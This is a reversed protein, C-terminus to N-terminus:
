LDQGFKVDDLLYLLLLLLFSSLLNMVIFEHTCRGYMCNRHSSMYTQWASVSAVTNKKWCKQYLGTQGNRTSTKSQLFNQQLFTSAFGWSDVFYKM